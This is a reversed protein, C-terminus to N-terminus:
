VNINIYKHFNFILAIIMYSFYCCKQLEYM